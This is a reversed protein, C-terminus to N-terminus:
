LVQESMAAVEIFDKAGDFYWPVVHWELGHGTDRFEHLIFMRKQRGLAWNAQFTTGCRVEPPRKRVVSFSHAHGSLIGVVGKSSCLRDLDSLASTRIGRAKPGGDSPSHHTVVIPYPRLAGARKRSADISRELADLDAKRFAGVALAQEQPLADSTSCIGHFTVFASGVSIEAHWPESDFYRARTTLSVFPNLVVGNWYDHNGPLDLVHEFGEILPPLQRHADRKFGLDRITRYLCLEDRAGRASVDGSIILSPGGGYLTQIEALKASFAELVFLDHGTAKPVLGGGSMSAGVHLDSIHVVWQSAM